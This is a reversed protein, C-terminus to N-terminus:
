FVSSYTLTSYNIKYPKNSLYKLSYGLVLSFQTNYDNDLSELWEQYTEYGM